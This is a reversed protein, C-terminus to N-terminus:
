DEEEVVNHVEICDDTYYNPHFPIEEYKDLLDYILGDVNPDIWVCPIMQGTRPDEEQSEIMRFDIRGDCGEEMNSYRWGVVSGATTPDEGLLDRVENLMVAGRKVVDGNKDLLCRHYLQYNLFDQHGVIYSRNLLFDNTWQLNIEGNEKYKGFKFAYPSAISGDPLYLKIKEKKGTEEDVVTITEPKSGTMYYKDSDEGKDEIVRRRYLDFSEQLATYAAGLAVYRKKIIGYSACFCTISVGTLCVVPAYEKAFKGATQFYVKTIEKKAVEEDTAYKIKADRLTEKHDDLIENSKSGARVAFYLAGGFTVIGGALLLEPAHNSTWCKATVLATKAHNLLSM